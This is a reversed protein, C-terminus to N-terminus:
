RKSCDSGGNGVRGKIYIVYRRPYCEDEEAFAMGLYGDLYVSAQKGPRRLIQVWDKSLPWASEFQVEGWGASGEGKRRLMVISMYDYLCLDELHSGWYPNAQIFTM